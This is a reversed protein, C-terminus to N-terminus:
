APCVKKCMRGHWYSSPYLEFIIDHGFAAGSSNGSTLDLVDIEKDHDISEGGIVYVKGHVCISSHKYRPRPMDPLDTWTQTDVNFSSCKAISCKRLLLKVM